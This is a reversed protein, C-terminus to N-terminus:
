DIGAAKGSVAALDPDDYSPQAVVVDRLPFSGNEQLCQRSVWEEVDGFRQECTGCLLYDTIQRDTFRFSEKSGVVVSDNAGASRRIKKYINAPLLHSDKLAVGSRGCLKCTGIVSM